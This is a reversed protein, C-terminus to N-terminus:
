MDPRVRFFPIFRFDTGNETRKKELSLNVIFMEKSRYQNQFSMLSRRLEPTKMRQYKVEYPIQRSGTNVVFDVEAGYKTRWYHISASTNKLSERLALFVFNQFLFGEGAPDGLNGFNGLAFNRFGTDSFYFVPSKTIEKRVNKFFPTVRHLMFTKELYWLYDGITKQSLGLTRSLEAVNVPRGIQSAVVRVLNTFDQTKKIHLLSSIDKELYSQYLENILARKGELSEELVIRPYGGFSMYEHLLTLTKEKEVTFFDELNNQYRYSTRYDVFERFTLTSLEFIRKRGALSEHIAEKLELSGSGTVIWKYPLGMDYLGKLFLGANDKRQIEDIFVYGASKGFELKLKQVLTAQSACYRMDAEIDLNLFFTRKGSVALEQQLARILTTKGAQRPGTILTIEKESLHEKLSPYLNRQIM